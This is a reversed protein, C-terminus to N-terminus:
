RLFHVRLDGLCCLFKLEGGKSVLRDEHEFDLRSTTDSWNRLSLANDPVASQRGAARQRYQIRSPSTPASRKSSKTDCRFAISPSCAQCRLANSNHYVQMSSAPTSSTTFEPSFMNIRLQSRSTHLATATELLCLSSEREM